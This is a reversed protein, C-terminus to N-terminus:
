SGRPTLVMRVVGSRRSPTAIPAITMRRVLTRGKVGLCIAGCASAPRVAYWAALLAALTALLRVVGGLVGRALLVAATRLDSHVDVDVVRHLLQDLRARVSGDIVTDGKVSFMSILRYALEILMEPGGTEPSHMGSIAYYIPKGDYKATAIATIYAIM